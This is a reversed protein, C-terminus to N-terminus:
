LGRSADPRRLSRVRHPRAWRRAALLGSSSETDRTIAAVRCSFSGPRMGVLASYDFVDSGAYPYKGGRVVLGARIPNGWIYACAQATDQDRRLVRDHYSHQWLRQTHARLFLYGSRQKGFQIFRCLSATASRGKVLLHLHDPMFCYALIACECTKAAHRFQTLVSDVTEPSVFIAHRRFTCITVLYRHRGRYDFSKLRPTRTPSV